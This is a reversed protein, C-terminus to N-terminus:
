TLCRAVSQWLQLPVGTAVLDPFLLWQAVAPCSDCLRVVQLAGFSNAIVLPSWLLRLIKHRSHLGTWHLLVIECAHLVVLTTAIKLPLPLRIGAQRCLPGLAAELLLLPGQLSFFLMWRGASPLTRLLPGASITPPFAALKSAFEQAAGQPLAPKRVKGGVKQVPCPDALWVPLLCASRPSATKAGKLQQVHHVSCALAGSLRRTLYWFALEHVAGSVVFTAVTGLMHRQRPAM